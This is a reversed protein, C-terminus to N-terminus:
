AYDVAFSLEPDAHLEWYRQWIRRTVPMVKGGGVPQSDLMTIPMIGGATSTLFIEDADYLSAVPVDEQRVEWGEARAIQKATQRTVGELVGRGPTRLVHDHVTFINYSGETINGDGDPLLPLNAGRDFAEFFGRSLDGWQLNKITPDMAGPPTRRVERTVVASGGVAHMKLPLIWIYPVAFAYIAPEALRADRQGKPTAGRTIIVDVYADRLGTLRVLEVLMERIASTPMPPELRLKACSRELRALHDDLRFFRGNWVASVDYTLDSRLFGLDFLPVTAESAPVYEGRVFAAGEAYAGNALAHRATRTEFAELLSSFPM